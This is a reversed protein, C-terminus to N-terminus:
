NPLWFICLIFFGRAEENNSLIVLARLPPGCELLEVQHLNRKRCMDMVTQKLEAHCKDTAHHKGGARWESEHTMWERVPEDKARVSCFVIHCHINGSENHGEPHTFVIGQHGGFWKRAFEVAMRHAEDFTLGVDRDRPDFSLVYHHSKVDTHHRM